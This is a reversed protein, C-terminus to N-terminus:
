KQYTSISAEKPDKDDSPLKIPTAAPHFDDALFYILDIRGSSKDTAKTAKLIMSSFRLNKPTFVEIKPHSQILDKVEDADFDERLDIEQQETQKDELPIDDFKLETDNFAVFQLTEDDKVRLTLKRKSVHADNPSFLSLHVNHSKPSQCHQLFDIMDSWTFLCADPDHLLDVVYSSTFSM